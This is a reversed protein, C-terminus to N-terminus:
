ADMYNFLDLMQQFAQTTSDLSHLVRINRSANTILNLIDLITIEPIEAQAILELQNVMLGRSASSMDQVLQKAPNALLAPLSNASEDKNSVVELLHAVHQLSKVPYKQLTIHELRHAIVSGQFNGQLDRFNFNTHNFTMHGLNLAQAVLGNTCILRYLGATVQYISSKQLDAMVQLSPKLVLQETTLDPYIEHDWTIFDPQDYDPMTLTTIFSLGGRIATHTAVEWGQELLPNLVMDPSLIRSDRGLKMSYTKGTTATFAKDTLSSGGTPNKYKMNNVRGLEEFEWFTNGLKDEKQVLGKFRRGQVTVQTDLEQAEEQTIEFASTTTM